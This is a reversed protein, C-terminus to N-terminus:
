LEGGRGALAMQYAAVGAAVAAVLCLGWLVLGTVVLPKRIAKLRPSLAGGVVGLLLFAAGALSVVATVDHLIPIWPPAPPM